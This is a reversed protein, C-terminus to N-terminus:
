YIRLVYQVTAIENVLLFITQKLRKSTCISLCLIVYIRKSCRRDNTSNTTEMYPKIPRSALLGNLLYCRFPVILLSSVDLPAVM